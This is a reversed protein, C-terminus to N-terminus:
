SLPLTAYLNANLWLGSASGTQSEDDGLAEDIGGGTLMALAVVVWVPWGGFILATAFCLLFANPLSYLLAPSRV